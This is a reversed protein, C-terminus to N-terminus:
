TFSASVSLQWIGTNFTEATGYPYHQTTIYIAEGGKISLYFEEVDPIEFANEPTKYYTPEVLAWNETTVATAAKSIQVQSDAAWTNTTGLLNFLGV